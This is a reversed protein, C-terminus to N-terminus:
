FAIWVSNRYYGYDDGDARWHNHHGHWTDPYYVAGLDTPYDIHNHM